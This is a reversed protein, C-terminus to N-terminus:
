NRKGTGALYQAIGNALAIFPWPDPATPLLNWPDRAGFGFDFDDDDARSGGRHQREVLRRSATPLHRWSRRGAGRGAELEWYKFVPFESWPAYRGVRGVRAAGSARGGGAALVDARAIAVAVQGAAIAAGRRREDRRAPRAPGPLNGRRRGSGCLRWRSAVDTM